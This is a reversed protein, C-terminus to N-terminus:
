KEEKKDYAPVSIPLKKVEDMIRKASGNGGMEEYPKFLYDYLNEYEDKTISGRKIYQMGLYCIRDHALGILMKTRVDKSDARKQMFAWFGSSALVSCVATIVIQILQDMGWDREVRCSARNRTFRFGM